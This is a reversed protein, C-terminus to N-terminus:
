LLGSCKPCHLSYDNGDPLDTIPFHWFNATYTYHGSM